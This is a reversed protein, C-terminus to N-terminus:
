GSIYAAGPIARSLSPHSSFLPEAFGPNTPYFATRYKLIIQNRGKPLPVAQADSESVSPPIHNQKQHHHGGAPSNSDIGGESLILAGAACRPRSIVRFELTKVKWLARSPERHFIVSMREPGFDSSQFNYM